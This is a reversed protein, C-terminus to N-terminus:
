IIPVVVLEQFGPVTDGLTPAGWSYSTSGGGAYAIHWTATSARFVAFDARADGDYDAPVPVDGLTPSGWTLTRTTNTLSLHVIWAGTSMRFIGIDVIGDGDYDAPVPVDASAPDGWTWTASTLNDFLVFWQGTSRRYVAVDALGNGSYDAPVPMDDDGAAGWTLQRLSNTSSQLIFWQGTTRRFIGIDTRGDGDYDAPVPLDRLSPAGWAYYSTGGDRSRRLFWEGTSGRYVGFDTKGDGDYDAPVPVDGLSPSGWSAYSQGGTSGNAFWEGTTGRYVMPDARGDGDFDGMQLLSPTRWTVGFWAGAENSPVSQGSANYAKVVFYYLQNAVPPRFTATTQNGVDFVSVYQGRATGYHVLYGTAGVSPNWALRIDSQAAAPSPAALLVVIVFAIAALRIGRLTSLFFSPKATSFQNSRMGLALALGTGGIKHSLLTSFPASIFRPRKLAVTIKVGEYTGRM